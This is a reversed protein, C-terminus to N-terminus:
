RLVFIRKGVFIRESDDKRKSILAQPYKQKLREFEEKTVDKIITSSM